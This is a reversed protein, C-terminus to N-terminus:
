AVPMGNVLMPFRPGYIRRAPESDPNMCMVVYEVDYGCKAWKARVIEGLKTAGEHTLFDEKRWRGEGRAWPPHRAM